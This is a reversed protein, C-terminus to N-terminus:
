YGYARMLEHYERDDSLIRQWETSLVPEEYPQSTPTSWHMPWEEIFREVSSDIDERLFAFLGKALDYRAANDQAQDLQVLHADRNARLREFARISDKYLTLLREPTNGMGYGLRVHSQFVRDGRRLVYVYQPQVLNGWLGDDFEAWPTKMGWRKAGPKERAPRSLSLWLARVVQAKRRDTWAKGQYEATEELLHRLSPLRELPVERGILIRGSTNLMASVATTGSRAPGCVIIPRDLSEVDLVTAIQYMEPRAHQPGPTPLRM